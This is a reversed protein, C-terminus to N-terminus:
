DELYLLKKVAAVARPVTPICLEELHHNYPMPMDAGTLREVPADLDDFCRRAIRYAIEAGVGNFPWGEEIILARGTKSVSSVILEEDLPRITRPDVVEVEIGEKALETAAALAIKVMKSWAVITIHKGERKVDGVGLPILYEGEPVEGLDGYMIEGEIFVIPNNDRLASKLLGKADYPNAPMVVKLGPVHAWLAETSQSHQAALMHASGGPGRFVIPLTFQGASMQRIKAANSILQDAAVFSFNWTMFEVIPRLGAMAAGIGIGAFGNEAIPTDLVRREGFKELMGKSVKYAGNYHGVEEGMLFIRDDREMEEVMAQNLAERFAIQAM